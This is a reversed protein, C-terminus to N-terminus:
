NVPWSPPQCTIAVWQRCSALWQGDAVARALVANVFRVFDPHARSIALGYPEPQLSPGTIVTEPDQAQM